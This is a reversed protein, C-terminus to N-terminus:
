QNAVNRLLLLNREREQLSLKIISVNDDDDTESELVDAEDDSVDTEDDSVDNEDNSEDTEDDSVNTENDEDSQNDNPINKNKLEIDCFVAALLQADSERITLLQLLSYRTLM